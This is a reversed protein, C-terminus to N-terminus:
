KKVMEYKMGPADNPRAVFGLSNYFHETGKAAFLHISRIKQLQCKKVLHQVIKSGIGQNRHGEKVIVDYIAAYIQGDSIIRGFGVLESQEYVCVSLYSKEIALELDRKSVNLMDDWGTALYLSYYDDINPLQEIFEMKVPIVNRYLPM